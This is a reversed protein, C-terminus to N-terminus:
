LYLTIIMQLSLYLNKNSFRLTKLEKLVLNKLSEAAVTGM